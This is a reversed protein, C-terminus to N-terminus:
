ISSSEGPVSPACSKSNNSRAMRVRDAEDLLRGNERVMEARVGQYTITNDREFDGLITERIAEQTMTRHFTAHWSAYNTEHCKRCDGSELYGADARGVRVSAYDPTLARITLAIATVALLVGGWVQAGSALQSKM